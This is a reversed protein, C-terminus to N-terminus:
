ATEINTCNSFLDYIRLYRKVRPNMEFNIFHDLEETNKLIPVEIFIEKLNVMSAIITKFSENSPYLSLRLHLVQVRTFSSVQLTCKELKDTALYLRLVSNMNKLKQNPTKIDFTSIVLQQVSKPINHINFSRELNKLSLIHVNLRKIIPMEEFDIIEESLKKDFQYDQVLRRIAPM